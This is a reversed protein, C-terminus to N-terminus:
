RKCAHVPIRKTHIGQWDSEDHSSVSKFVDSQKSKAKRTHEKVPFSEDIETEDAPLAEQEAEDFLNYQGDLNKAKEGSTGFLKGCFLYLARQPPDM